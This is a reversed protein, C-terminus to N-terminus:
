RTSRVTGHRLCCLFAAHRSGEDGPLSILIPLLADGQLQLQQGYIQQECLRYDGINLVFCGSCLAVWLTGSSVDMTGAGMQECTELADATNGAAPGRM